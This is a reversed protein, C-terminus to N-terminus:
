WRARRLRRRALPLVLFWAVLGLLVLPLHTLTTLVLLVGLAAFVPWPLARSGGRLDASKAPSPAPGPLDGFVPALEGRTRAAWIQDLRQGHEEANLRGQVYHESLRGAAAEREADSMRLDQDSM